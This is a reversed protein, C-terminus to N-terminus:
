ELQVLDHYLYLLHLVMSSFEQMVSKILYIVNKCTSYKLFEGSTLRHWSCCVLLASFRFSLIFFVLKQKESLWCLRSLMSLQRILLSGGANDVSKVLLQFLNM